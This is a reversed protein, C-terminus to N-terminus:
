IDGSARLHQAVLASYVDFKGLTYPSTDVNGGLMPWPKLIFCEGYSLAGAQEKVDEIKREWMLERRFDENPLNIDFVGELSNGLPIKHVEQTIVLYFERDRFSACVFDGWALFGILLANDGVLWSWDSLTDTSYEDRGCVTFLGDNYVGAELWDYDDGLLGSEAFLSKPDNAPQTKSYYDIFRM